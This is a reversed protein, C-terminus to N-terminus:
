SKSWSINQNNPHKTGAVLFGTKDESSEVEEKLFYGFDYSEIIKQDYLELTKSAINKAEKLETGEKYYIHIYIIKGQTRITIDNVKENEKIKNIVENNTNNSVSPVGKLRSGYNDGETFFIKGFIATMIILLILVLLLILSLGKHRKIVDIM